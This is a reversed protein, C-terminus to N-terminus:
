SFTFYNQLCPIPRLTHARVEELSMDNSYDEGLNVGEFLFRCIMGVCYSLPGGPNLYPLGSLSLLWQAM